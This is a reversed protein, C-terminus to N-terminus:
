FPAVGQKEVLLEYLKVKQDSTLKAASTFGVFHEKNEERTCFEGIHGMTWNLQKMAGMLKDNISLTSKKEETQKVEKVPETKVTVSDKASSTEKGTNSQVTPKGSVAKTENETNGDEFDKDGELGFFSQIQYRRMYTHVRGLEQPDDDGNFSLTCVIMAEHGSVILTTTPKGDVSHFPQIWAVGNDTLPKLIASRIVHYPAYKFKQHGKQGTASKSIGEVTAMAKGVHEILKVPNGVFSMNEIFMKDDKPKQTRYNSITFGDQPQFFGPDICGINQQSM